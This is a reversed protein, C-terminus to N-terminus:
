KWQKIKKIVAKAEDNNNIDHMALWVGEPKLHEMITDLEDQYAHLQIGKGAAQCKKYIHLWDSARGNGAGYVWQIANLEKISLLSDLHRLADPGDLHYIAADLQRCEETIGPLFIENFMEKSIMCSFDNSPVYWKKTSVIGAWNTTAQKHAQLKAYFFDFIKFYEKGVWDALAKVKGPCEIMDFNLNMPDRFATIADGGPHFDTLGVYFRNKGMELLTNTLEVLKKFYLNNESFQLKDVEDMSELNPIAWSTTASYELEMGFFASLVEPGLNPNVKPLADGCFQTNMTGYLAQKAFYEADFWRERHSDFTKEAPAPFEANPCPFQMNVVPRDIIENHWFADQREIRQEWDEIFEIPMLESIQM